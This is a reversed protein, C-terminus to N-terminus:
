AMPYMRCQSPRADSGISPDSKLPNRHEMVKTTSASLPKKKRMAQSSM